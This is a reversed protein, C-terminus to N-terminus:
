VLSPKFSSREFYPVRSHRLSLKRYRKAAMFSDITDAFIGLTLYSVFRAKILTLFPCELSALLKTTSGASNIFTWAILVNTRFIGVLFLAVWRNLYDEYSVFVEGTEPIHWVQTQILM